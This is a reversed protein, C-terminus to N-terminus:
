LVTVYLTKRDRTFLYIINSSNTNERETTFLNFASVYIINKSIQRVIPRVRRIECAATVTLSAHDLLGM